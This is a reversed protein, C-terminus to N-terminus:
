LIGIEVLLRAFLFSCSLAFAVLSILYLPTFGESGLGLLPVTLFIIASLLTFFNIIKM